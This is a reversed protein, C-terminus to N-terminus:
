YNISRIGLSFDIGDLLKERDLYQTCQGLLPNNDYLTPIMDNMNVKAAPFNYEGILVKRWYPEHLVWTPFKTREDTKNIMDLPVKGPYLGSVEEPLYQFAMNVEHYDTISRKRLSQVFQAKKKSKRRIQLGFSYHDDPVCSYNMFISIGSSSTSDRNGNDSNTGSFGRFVSELWNRDTIKDHQAYNLSTMKIATTSTSASASTVTSTSTTTNDNKTQNHNHNHNHLEELIGNFKRLAFISDNLLVFDDYKRVLGQLADCFLGVDYRNNVYYQAEITVQKSIFLPIRLRVEKLVHEIIPKAWYTSSIIVHNVNTTKGDGTTTVSNSDETTTVFCELESWLAVIHRESLPIAAIIMVADNKTTDKNNNNNNNNIRNSTITSMSISSGSGTKQEPIVALQRRRPRLLANNSNNNENNLHIIKKHVYTIFTVSQFIIVVIILTLFKSRCKTMMVMKTTAPTSRM